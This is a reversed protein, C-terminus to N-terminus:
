FIFSLLLHLFFSFYSKLNSSFFFFQLFFDFFLFLTILLHLKLINQNSYARVCRVGESFWTPYSFDASKIKLFLAVQLSLIFVVIISFILLSLFFIFNLFDHKLIFNIDYDSEGYLLVCFSLIFYFFTFNDLYYLFITCYRLFVRYYLLTRFIRKVM